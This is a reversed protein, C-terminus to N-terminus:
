LPDAMLSFYMGEVSSKGEDNALIKRSTEIFTWAFNPTPVLLIIIELIRDSSFFLDNNMDPSMNQLFEEGERHAIGLPQGEHCRGGKDQSPPPPRLGGPSPLPPRHLAAAACPFCLSLPSCPLPFHSWVFITKRFIRFQIIM